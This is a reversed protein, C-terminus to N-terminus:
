GSVRGSVWASEGAPVSAVFEAGIVPVPRSAEVRFEEAPGLVLQRQWVAVVQGDDVQKRLGALLEPYHVGDRKRFWGAWGAPRGPEGSRGAVLAYVGGAGQQSAYALVDHPPRRDQDVAATALTGLAAFDDVLYWDEYGGGVLWPLEPVRLTDSSIFGPIPVAALRQHFVQLGREYDGATVDPKPQHWFTYALPM